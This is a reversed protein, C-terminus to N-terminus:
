WWSQDLWNEIRLGKVKAFGDVKATVLIRNTAIAQSAIILDNGDLISDKSQLSHRIDAYHQDCPEEIPLIELQDLIQHAQNTFAKSGKKLSGYRLEAATIVSVAITEEGVERIKIAVRGWPTRVLDSVINTDLLFRKRSM